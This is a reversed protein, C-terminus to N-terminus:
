FTPTFGQKKLSRRFAKRAEFEAKEKAAKEAMDRLHQKHSESLTPNALCAPNDCSDAKYSPYSCEKCVFQSM